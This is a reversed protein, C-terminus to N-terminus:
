SYNEGIEVEIKEMRREIKELSLEYAMKKEKTGDDYKKIFTRSQFRGQAKLQNGVRYDKVRLANRGWAICPIYDSKAYTRNNVILFQVIKRNSKSKERYVPRKYVFGNIEVFNKDKGDYTRVEKVFVFLYSHRNYNFNRVEGVIEIRNNTANNMQKLFVESFVIPIEDVFGSDRKSKITTELFREGSSKHSATFNKDIEGSIVIKNM